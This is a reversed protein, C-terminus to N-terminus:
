RAVQEAQFVKKAVGAATVAPFNRALGSTASFFM